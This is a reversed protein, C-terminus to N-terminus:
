YHGSIESLLYKSNGKFASTHYFLILWPVIRSFFIILMKFQLPEMKGM